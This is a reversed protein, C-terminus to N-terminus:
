DWDLQFLIDHPAPLRGGYYPFLPYTILKGARPVRVEVGDVTVIYETSTWDISASYTIDPLIETIETWGRTGSHYWYASTFIKGNRSILGIRISNAHHHIGDAYGFLKSWGVESSPVTFASDVQFSIKRPRIFPCRPGRSHHKGKRVTYKRM